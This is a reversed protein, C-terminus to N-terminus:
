TKNDDEVICWSTNIINLLELHIWDFGICLDTEKFCAFFFTLLSLRKQNFTRSVANRSAHCQSPKQVLMQVWRPSGMQLLFHCCCMIKGLTMCYHNFLVVFVLPWLLSERFIPYGWPHFCLLLSMSRQDFQEQLEIRSLCWLLLQYNLCAKQLKTPQCPESNLIWCVQFLFLCCHFELWDLM